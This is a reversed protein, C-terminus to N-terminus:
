FDKNQFTHFIIRVNKKIVSEYIKKQKRQSFNVWIDFYETVTVFSPFNAMMLM